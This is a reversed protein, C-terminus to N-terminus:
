SGNNFHLVFDLPGAQLRCTGGYKDADQSVRLWTWQMPWVELGLGIRRLSSWDWIDPEEQELDMM